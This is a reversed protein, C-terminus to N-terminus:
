FDKLFGQWKAEKAKQEAERESFEQAAAELMEDTRSDEYEGIQSVLYEKYEQVEAEDWSENVGYDTKKCNEELLKNLREDSPFIEEITYRFTAIHISKFPSLNPDNTMFEIVSHGWFREVLPDLFEFSYRWIQDVPIEESTMSTHIIQNRVKGFKKYDDLQKGEIKFGTTAWLRDPLEEYSLTHGNELLDNFTLTTREPNPKPVKTFILLPHEKAIRAKLLIEAAHAVHVFCKRRDFDSDLAEILADRFLFIGKLKMTQSINEISNPDM